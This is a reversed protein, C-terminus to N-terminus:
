GYQMISLQYSGAQEKKGEEGLQMTSLLRTKVKKQDTHTYDIQCQCENIWNM